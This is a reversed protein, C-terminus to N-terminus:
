GKQSDQSQTHLHLNSLHTNVVGYKQLFFQM